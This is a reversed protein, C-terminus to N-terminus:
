KKYYSHSIRKHIMKRGRTPAHNIRYVWWTRIAVAVFIIIIVVIMGYFLARSLPIVRVLVPYELGGVMYEDTGILFRVDYNGYPLTPTATVNVDFYQYSGMTINEMHDPSFNFRFRPDAEIALYVRNVTKNIMDNRVYLRMLTSTGQGMSYKQNPTCVKLITPSPNIIEVSSNGSLVRAGEIAPALVLCVILITWFNKM